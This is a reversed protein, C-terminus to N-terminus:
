LKFKNVTEQLEMALNSLANASATIEEMAALQEEASAAVNQAHDSSEKSVLSIEEVSLTVDETKSKLTKTTNALETTQMKMGEMADLISRFSVQSREVINLGENVDEKVELMSQNSRTIDEQIGQVLEIIQASSRQSQEALKRVEDAVVAFGKGHEGARAAEIAANLALLNTQNAIETIVETIDGIQQSRSDLSTIVHSTNEVSTRIAQIQKATSKVFEGGTEAQKRADEGSVAITTVSQSIHTVGRAVDQLNLVGKDVSTTQQDAGNAVEQIAETIQETAKNTQESGATLEESSAAVQQSTELVENMLSILNERMRNYNDSLASLEDGTKDEILQTFDGEGAKQLALTLVNLRKRLRKTFWFVIVIAIIITFALVVLFGVLFSALTQDIMKQSAGVYLIGIVEDNPDLIPMYATQYTHGAVEAEGYFKKGQKLVVNAVEESVTTGVARKGNIMVNTAVRTDEQFITVTDGTDEGIIDVVEDNGNMLHTGKYLEGNKIQWPGEYKNEIFREALSLDGKAKEIAFAKIGETVEKVVVFGIIGSLFLIVSLVILNIKTGLKLNLKRM